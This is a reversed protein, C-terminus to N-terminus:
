VKRRTTHASSLRAQHPLSADPHRASILDLDFVTTPLIALQALPFLCCCHVPLRTLTKDRCPLRMTSSVVVLGTLSPVKNLLRACMALLLSFATSDLEVITKSSLETLTVRGQFDM